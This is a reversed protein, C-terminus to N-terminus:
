TLSYFRFGRIEKKKERLLDNLEGRMPGFNPHNPALGLSKLKEDFSRQRNKSPESDPLFFSKWYLPRPRYEDIYDYFSVRQNWLSVKIRERIEPLPSNLFDDYGMFSVKGSNFHIKILDIEDLEGYLQQAFGVYARLLVPLNPLQDKHLMLSHNDDLFGSKNADWYREACAKIEDESSLKEILRNAELQLSQYNGFFHKIDNQQSPELHKYIRRGSFISM